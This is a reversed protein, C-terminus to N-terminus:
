GATGGLIYGQGKVTRILDPGFRKRLSSVYVEVV